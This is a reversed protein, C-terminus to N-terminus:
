LTCVTCRVECADCACNKRARPELACNIQTNDGFITMTGAGKDDVSLVGAEEERGKKRVPCVGAGRLGSEQKAKKGFLRRECLRRTRLAVAGCAVRKHMHRVVRPLHCTGFFFCLLTEAVHMVRGVFAWLSKEIRQADKSPSGTPCATCLAVDPFM